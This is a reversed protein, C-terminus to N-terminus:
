DCSIHYASVAGAVAKLLGDSAPEIITLRRPGLRAAVLGILHSAAAIHGPESVAIVAIGCGEVLRAKEFQTIRQCHTSSV